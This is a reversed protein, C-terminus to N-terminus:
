GGLGFARRLSITSADAAHGLLPRVGLLEETTRLLSYHTFYGNSSTGAATSGSLVLTAVHCSPKSGDCSEGWTGGQGEDWTLFIATAGSRYSGTSLFRPLWTHLWSDTTTLPCSHGDNCVNPLVLSFSPLSDSALAAALGVRKDGLPVDFRKCDARIRSFYVPPNHVIDYAGRGALACNRPMSEVFARWSKHHSRLVTFLSKARVPCQSPKCDNTLHQTGGTVAAVYNPLSPHSVSHYDTALGCAPRLVGNLYPAEERAESGTGGVVEGYSHNELWIWVVHRVGSAPTPAFGCAVDTAAEASAARNAPVAGALLLVAVSAVIAIGTRVSAPYASGTWIPHEVPRPEIM